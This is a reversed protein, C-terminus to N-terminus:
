SARSAGTTRSGPAVFDLLYHPFLNVPVNGGSPAGLLFSAFANGEFQQHQEAHQPHVSRTFDIQGGPTATTTTTCTPALPHRSRQPRQSQRADALHEAPRYLGQEDNPGFGRSFQVFHDMNVVPFMGGVQAAPFQSVLSPRGASSRRTSDSRPTPQPQGRSLLHLQQARQVGHRRRLHAGLRRGGRRQRPSRCSATKRRVPASATTNRVENRENKGWRFFM